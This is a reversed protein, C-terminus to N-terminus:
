TFLFLCNKLFIFHHRYLFVCVWALEDFAWNPNLTACIDLFVVCNARDSVNGCIHKITNTCAWAHTNTYTNHALSSIKQAFHHFQSLQQIVCVSDIGMKQVISKKCVKVTEYICIAIPRNHIKNGSSSQEPNRFVLIIPQTISSSADDHDTGFNWQRKCVNM